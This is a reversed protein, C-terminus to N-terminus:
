IDHRHRVDESLRRLNGHFYAQIHLVTSKAFEYMDSHSIQISSLKDYSESFCHLCSKSILYKLAGATGSM